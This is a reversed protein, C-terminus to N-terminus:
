TKESLFCASLSLLSSMNYKIFLKRFRKNPFSDSIWSNRSRWGNTFKAVMEEIRIDKESYSAFLKQFLHNEILESSDDSKVSDCNEEAEESEM